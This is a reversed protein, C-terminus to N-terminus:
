PIARLVSSKLPTKAISVMFMSIVAELPRLALVLQMVQLQSGRHGGSVNTLDNRATSNGSFIYENGEALAGNNGAAVGGILTNISNFNVTSGSQAHIILHNGKAIAKGTGNTKAWGGVLNANAAAETNITAGSTITLTNGEAWADLTSDEGLKVYGGYANGSGSLNNLDGGLDEAGITLGAGSVIGDKHDVSTGDDYDGAVKKAQTM